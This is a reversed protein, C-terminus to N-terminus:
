INTLESIIEEVKELNNLGGIKNQDNYKENKSNVKKITDVKRNDNGRNIWRYCKELENFM